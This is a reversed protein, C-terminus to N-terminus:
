RGIVQPVKFFIGDSEPAAQMVVARDLGPAPEDERLASGAEAGAGPLLESVQAMPAVGSVDLENLQAIYGLVANLDRRMAPVEDPTLELSALAAVARV